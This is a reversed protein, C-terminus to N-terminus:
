TRKIAESFAMIAHKRAFAHEVIPKPYAPSGYNQLWNRIYRMEPDFKKQQLTPNFIRFYPAADCGTGAAWQWGGNNSSLEYDLLKEAFYAEGWRWDTLLHKSLFAATIMRVRNHMYGSANLQKMGADVMPYGTEGNCWAQFESTNNRWVIRDYVTKFAQRSVHPFNWLIMMYFERWILENLFTENMAAALQIIKRISITGFRLHVGLRSTGEQWPMDRTLHYNQIIEPDPTSSPYDYVKREFGLVSLPPLPIKKEQYFGGKKKESPFCVMEKESFVQKWRRMYPTFVTYPEGNDKVVEKKEFMVQDKFSHLGANKQKLLERIRNDRETAFPEYDTNTFVGAVPWESMLQSFVTFPDGHRVMLSGGYLAIKKHLKEIHEYIFNVRRDAKDSLQKLINTDFIFVPLVPKGDSLAHFLGCNDELRLDRRFWFINVPRTM